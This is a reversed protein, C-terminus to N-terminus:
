PAGAPITTDPPIQFYIFLQRALSRWLPGAASGGFITARPHNLKVLIVFRPHTAPAYGIVSAFTESPNSIDPTSTGTKAAITYGQVLNMQAESQSASEVLMQTVEEATSPSVVQRVKEPGYHTLPGRGNGSTVSSVIYPRMVMGGNALAGYDMFMQLPTVAISEGFANEATTLDLASSQDRLGAAEDPLRLGTPQLFGFARLYSSFRDNGIRNAAWIAGTNASYQLVQTMTINGHAIEDWNHLTIGDIVAQGTDTYTSDPTIVGSDIGMAMTMAKMVSGPDYTDSVAPDVFNALNTNGYHNPDFSPLSAMAMIAGTQPNM